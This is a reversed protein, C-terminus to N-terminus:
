SNAQLLDEVRRYWDLMGERQGDSLRAAARALAEAAAAREARQQYLEALWLDLQLHLHPSNLAHM